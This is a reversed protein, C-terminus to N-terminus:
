GLQESAGAIQVAVVVAGDFQCAVQLGLAGCGALRDVYRGHQQIQLGVRRSM